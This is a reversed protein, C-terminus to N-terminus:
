RDEQSALKNILIGAGIILWILSGLGMVFNLGNLLWLSGSILLTMVSNIIIWEPSSFAMGMLSLALIFVIFYNNELFDVGSEEYIVYSQQAQLDGGKSIELEVISDGITTLYECDISGSSSTISQNCLSTNGFTDTQTLLINVNSPTGSPISFTTTITGNSEAVSYSFDTLSESTVSNDPDIQGLLNETCQGSLENECHFVLSPFIDLVVGDKVVIAKYLNTNLDVHVIATGIDSTTPAEVTEYVDSGIYKRQLQIIAGEVSILSDDQYKILFETSDNLVLDFLSLNIPYDTLDANQINYLEPAYDIADYRIEVDLYYNDWSDSPTLCIEKYTVGTFTENFTILEEGTIKGILQANLEITGNLSTRGEEDFLSINMLLDEDVGCETLEVNIVTQNQSNIFYTEGAITFYFGFSYNTNADVIPANISSSVMYEGGSYVISTTYNTDGYEFIAQSITNGGGLIVEADFTTLAGEYTQNNYTINATEFLYSWTTTDSALLSFTDNVYVTINNIGDIYTFNQSNATCNSISTNTGNYSYWCQDIHETLNQGAESINYVLTEETYATRNYFGSPSTVNVIPSTTHVTLTRNTSQTTVGSVTVTECTWNYIGDTTLNYSYNLTIDTGATSNTFLPTGDLLLTLNAINSDFTANCSFNQYTQTTQLADTPTILTITSGMIQESGFYISPNASRM